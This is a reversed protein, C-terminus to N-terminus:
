LVVIDIPMAEDPMVYYNASAFGSIDTLWVVKNEFEPIAFYVDTDTAPAVSQSSQGTFSVHLRVGSQNSKNQFGLIPYIRKWEGPQLTIKEMM